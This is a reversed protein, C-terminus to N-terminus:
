YLSLWHRYDVKENSVIHRSILWAYSHYQRQDSLWFASFCEVKM